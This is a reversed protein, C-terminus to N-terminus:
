RVAIKNWIFAFVAGIVYGAIASTVVLVLGSAWTFDTVTFPASLFHRDLFFTLKSEGMGFGVALTWLLHWFGVFVGVALGTRHINLKHM